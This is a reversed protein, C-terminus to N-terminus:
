IAIWILLAVHFTCKSCTRIVQKAILSDSARKVNQAAEEQKQQLDRMMKKMLVIDADEM